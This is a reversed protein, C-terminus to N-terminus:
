LEKTNIIHVHLMNYVTCQIQLNNGAAFDDKSIIIFMIITCTCTTDCTCTGDPNMM